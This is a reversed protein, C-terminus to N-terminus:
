RGRYVAPRTHTRPAGAPEPQEGHRGTRPAVKDDGEVLTRQRLREGGTRLRNRFATEKDAQQPTGTQRLEGPRFLGERSLRAERRRATEPTRGAETRPHQWRPTDPEDHWRRGAATDPLEGAPGATKHSVFGISAGRVCAM